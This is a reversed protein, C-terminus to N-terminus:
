RKKNWLLNWKSYFKTQSIKERAQKSYEKKDTKSNEVRIREKEKQKEYKIRGKRM